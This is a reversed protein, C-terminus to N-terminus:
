MTTTSLSPIPLPRPRRKRFTKGGVKSDFGGDDVDYKDAELTQYEEEGDYLVEVKLNGTAFAEGETFETKQGSLRVTKIVSSGGCAFLFLSCSMAFLLTLAVKLKRM